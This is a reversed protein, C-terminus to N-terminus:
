FAEGAWPWTLLAGWEDDGAAELQALPAGGGRAYAPPSPKSVRRPLVYMWAGRQKGICGDPSKPSLRYLAVITGAM